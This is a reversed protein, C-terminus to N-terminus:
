IGNARELDEPTDISISEYDTLEVKITFGNEIWRNQELSEALELPSPELQTIKQLAEARYAYIGLHKIYSYKEHWQNQPYNRIYPIPSRSFYLAKGRSDRVLKVHNPNLIDEAHLMLKGLTAIDTSPDNFCARLQNLAQAQIFPEDGQINFVVDYNTKELQEIKQLAECIRDTGSPHNPSTMVVKGGFGTVVSSIRENDTAVYVHEFIISAQQYVRQVMPLGKVIALPKGPFRTSAYRAPIIGIFKIM